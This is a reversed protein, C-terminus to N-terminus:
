RFPETRTRPRQSKRESRVPSCTTAMTFVVPPAPTAAWFSKSESRGDHLFSFVRADLMAPKGERDVCRIRDFGAETLMAQFREQDWWRLHWDRELAEMDGEPSIREYRLRNTARRNKADFEVGVSGCRLVTQDDLTKETFKGIFKRMLRESQTELPILVRGGPELHDHMRKLAELADADSTLLIMSAGAIFISRYLGPLDMDQINQHFVRAELGKGRATARLRELMDNSADLGEIDYGMELLEILPSGTGCFPELVPQGSSEIFRTYQAASARESVLPEYLESVLGTYFQSPDPDQSAM